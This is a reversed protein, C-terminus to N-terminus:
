SHGFSRFGSVSTDFQCQHSMNQEPKGTSRVCSTGIQAVRNIYAVRHTACSAFSATDSPGSVPTLRISSATARKRM